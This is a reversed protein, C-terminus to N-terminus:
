GQFLGGVFEVDDSVVDNLPTSRQFANVTQFISNWLRDDVSDPDIDFSVSLGVRTEKM